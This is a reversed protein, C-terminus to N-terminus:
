KVEHLKNLLKQMEIEISLLSHIPANTSSVRIYYDCMNKFRERLENKLERDKLTQIWDDLAKNQLEMTDFHCKTYKVFDELERIDIM